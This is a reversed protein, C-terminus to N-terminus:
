YHVFKTFFKIINGYQMKLHDTRQYGHGAEQEIYIEVDKGLSIAKGIFTYIPEIPCRSDNARHVIYLPEQLQEIFNYASRDDYLEKKEEPTGLFFRETFSKFLRDGLRHMEHWNTTGVIAAGATFLGPHKTMVLFTMFGGYSAGTLFIQKNDPYKMKLYERAKLVDKLDNGGLDGLNLDMFEKGYGTSGRINPCFVRFGAPAYLQIINGMAEWDLSFEWSPGGHILIIIPEGPLKNKPEIEFAPIKWKDFSPYRVFSPSPLSIQLDNPMSSMLVKNEGTELNHEIIQIAFAVHSWQFFIRNKDEKSIKISSIWGEPLPIEKLGGKSNEIFVRTKGEKKASFIVDNSEPIWLCDTYDIAIDKKSSELPILDNKEIEWYALYTKDPKTVQLLLRDGSYNWDFPILFTDDSIDLTAILESSNFDIIKIMSVKPRTNDMEFLSFWPKKPNIQHFESYEKTSYLKVLKQDKISYRWTCIEEETSGSFILNEDDPTWQLYQSVRVNDLKLLLETHIKEINTIYLNHLENGGTEQPYVYNLNDNSLCGTMIRETGPTLDILDSFDNSEEKKSIEKKYVHHFKDKNTIVLLFDMNKSLKHFILDKIEFLKYAEEINQSFM